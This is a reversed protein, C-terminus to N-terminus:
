KKQKKGSSKKKKNKKKTTKTLTDTIKNRRIVPMKKNTTGFINRADDPAYFDDSFQDVSTGGVGADGTTMEKILKSVDVKNYKKWFLNKTKQIFNYNNLSKENLNIKKKVKSDIYSIIYNNDSKELSIVQKYKHEGKKSFLLDENFLQKFNLM